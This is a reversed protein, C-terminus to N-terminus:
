RSLVARLAAELDAATGAGQSRWAIFRDPRVLSAGEVGIGYKERWGPADLVVPKVTVGLREGVEVAAQAWADSETLLVFSRGFLDITSSNKQLWVHPAHSGPRGTPAAPDEVRAGDEDPEPVVAGGPYRYGLLAQEPPILPDEKGDALQPASRFIMNSYQQGAVLDGYPRREIDYSDLLAPGAQGDVVAALKWALYFGDMVATNGGQGGHPPMTHAADGVLFARGESFKDAIRHAMGTAARDVIKVDLDAIGVAIRVKTTLEQESYSELTRVEPDYAFIVAWRGPTDTSVFGGTGEGDNLEPNQLYFLSFERGKVVEDLDADFLVVIAHGIDGRGHWGIGLQERIDGRWGDAAVLYDATVTSIEGTDLDKLQATVGNADQSFSELRTGFRLEAGFERARDALIPEAREQSAMAMTAPTLHSWDPWEEGLIEHIPPGTVSQAIVIPMGLSIDYGAATMKDAVGAYALAEMTHWSQGRAKPQNSTSPHREVLLSPVGHQGLFMATSTGALGAGVILVPVHNHTM